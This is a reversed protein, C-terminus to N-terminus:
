RLHMRPMWGCEELQPQEDFQSSIGGVYGMGEDGEDGGGGGGGGGGWLM